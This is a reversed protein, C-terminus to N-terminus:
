SWAAILDTEQAAPSAGTRAPRAPAFRYGVGFHTHIYAWGPAAYQLKQRLRRVFVDVSRDRYTMRGGWVLAYLETRPVIRNRRQALILLTDFERATLALPRNTVLVRREDAHIVLNGSRLARWSTRNEALSTPMARPVTRESRGGATFVPNRVRIKARETYVVQSRSRDQAVVKAAM